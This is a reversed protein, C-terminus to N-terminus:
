KLRNEEPVVLVGRYRMKGEQLVGFAEVIGDCDMVFKHVKPKVGKAAAFDLMSKHLNTPALVSGQITIGNLLLPM